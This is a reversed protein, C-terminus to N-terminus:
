KFIVKNLNQHDSIQNILFYQSNISILDKAKNNKKINAQSKNAKKNLIKLYKNFDTM